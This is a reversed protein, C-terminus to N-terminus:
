YMSVEMASGLPSISKSETISRSRSPLGECKGVKTSEERSLAVEQRGLRKSIEYRRVREEGSDRGGEEAEEREIREKEM